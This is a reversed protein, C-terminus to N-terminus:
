RRREPRVDVRSPPSEFEEPDAELGFRIVALFGVIGGVALLAAIGLAILGILLFTTM